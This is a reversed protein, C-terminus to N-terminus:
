NLTYELCEEIDMFNETFEGNENLFFQNPISKFSKKNVSWNTFEESEEDEILVVVLSITNEDCRTPNANHNAVRITWDEDTTPHTYTIYQTGIGKIINQIAKETQEILAKM